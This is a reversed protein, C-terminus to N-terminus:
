HLLFVYEGGTVHVDPPLNVNEFFDYGEKLKVWFDMWKPQRSWEKVMRQDTMRFPFANVRFYPQGSELACHALTYVENMDSESLVYSGHSEEGARVMIESGSRGHLSDYDNPYGLDFGLHHRTEPRMRSTSVFYFGEPTQGDGEKQKPGTKGSWDIIRYIKFLTYGPKGPAKLWVELEREEKFIRVFLPNGLSLGMKGLEGNLREGTEKIIAVAPVPPIADNLGYHPQNAAGTAGMTGPLMGQLLRITNSALPYPVQDLGTSDVQEEARGSVPDPTSLPAMKLRGSLREVKGYLRHSREEDARWDLLDKVLWPSAIGAAILFTSILVRAIM